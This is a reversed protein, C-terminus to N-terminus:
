AQVEGVSYVVTGAEPNKKWREFKGTVLVYMRDHIRESLNSTCRLFLVKCVSKFM